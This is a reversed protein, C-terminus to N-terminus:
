LAILSNGGANISGSYNITSHSLSGLPRATSKSSEGLLVPKGVSVLLLTLTPAAGNWATLELESPSLTPVMKSTTPCTTVAMTEVKNGTITESRKEIDSVPAALAFVACVSAILISKFSLM